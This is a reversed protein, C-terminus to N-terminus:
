PALSVKQGEGHVLMRYTKEIRDWNEERDLSWYRGIVSVIKGLRLNDLEKEITELYRAGSEKREGRRGLMAHHYLNEVSEQKALKFLAMLHDMSGHSSFFSVIGMLHLSKGDRKAGRMARLFADNRFFTGDQIARDIILRDSLIRRGAGIHLHGAESNGVTGKPLGVAEGSAELSTFPFRKQLEDMVPTDATAILNGHTEARYGWGDLLITLVRQSEQGKKAPKKLLLSRGTMVSPKPIDLLDLVTPAVDSLEGGRRLKWSSTEEARPPVLIFPVPNTTHGTDITGDPYLWREATGHDATVITVVGAERAAELCRGLNRDVAEVAKRIAGENEIHGVVDINAFNVFWFSVQPERLKQIVADAVGSANMEPKQDFQPVDKPTPVAIREEGPFPGHVKGNLFFSVHVAKESESINVQKVGHRSLTESLTHRIEEEPSFAVRANLKQHYPIMTVMSLRLDKKVPFHSFDPDLLSQCLEVEREGRLNYFIVYDGDRFRGIPKGQQDALVRPELTEDDEGAQYAEHVAQTM